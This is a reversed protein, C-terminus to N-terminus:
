MGALHRPCIAHCWHTCCRVRRKQKVLASGFAGSGTRCRALQTPQQQPSRGGVKKGKVATLHAYAKSSSM